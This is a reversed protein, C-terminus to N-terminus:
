LSLAQVSSDKKEAAAIMAHGIRDKVSSSPNLFECKGYIEAGTQDSLKNLRILPTNGILDVVSNLIRKKNESM